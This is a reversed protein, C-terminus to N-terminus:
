QKCVHIFLERDARPQISNYCREFVKEKFTPFFYKRYLKENGGYPPHDDFLPDDFLVGVLAGHSRLLADMKTIYETRQDPHLACFFTQELILDYAGEHAFFDDQILNESPFDPCRRKLEHLPFESLDIVHVNKFGNNWLYEAEYANGAGPILVRLQRNTLSDAYDKIPTTIKGTDWPINGDQYRNTWYSENTIGLNAM